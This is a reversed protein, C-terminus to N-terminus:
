PQPKIGSHEPAACRAAEDIIRRAETARQIQLTEATDPALGDWRGAPAQMSSLAFTIAAFGLLVAGLFAHHLPLGDWTQGQMLPGLLLVTGSAVLIIAALTLSHRVLTKPRKVGDWDNM